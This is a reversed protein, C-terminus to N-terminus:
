RESWCSHRGSKNRVRGWPLSPTNCSYAALGGGTHRTDTEGHRSRSKTNENEIGSQWEAPVHYERRQATTHTVSFRSTARATRGTTMKM